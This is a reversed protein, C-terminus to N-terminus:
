GGGELERRMIERRETERWQILEERSTAPPQEKARVAEQCDQAESLLEKIESRGQDVEWALVLKSTYRDNVEIVCAITPCACVETKFAWLIEEPSDDTHVLEPRMEPTAVTSDETNVLVPQTERAPIPTVGQFSHEETRQLPLLLPFPQKRVTLSHMDFVVPAPDLPPAEEAPKMPYWWLGAFVCLGVISIASAVVLPSKRM